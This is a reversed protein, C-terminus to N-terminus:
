YLIKIYLVYIPMTKRFPRFVFFFKLLNWDRYYLLMFKFIVFLQGKYSRLAPEFQRHLLHQLTFSKIAFRTALSKHQLTSSFLVYQGYGITSASNLTQKTGDLNSLSWSHTWHIHSIVSSNIGTWGVQWSLFLSGSTVLSVHEIMTLMTNEAGKEFESFHNLVEKVSIVSPFHCLHM